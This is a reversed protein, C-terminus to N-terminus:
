IIVLQTPSYSEFPLGSAGSEDSKGPRVPHQPGLPQGIGRQPWKPDPKEPLSQQIRLTQPNEQKPKEKHHGV